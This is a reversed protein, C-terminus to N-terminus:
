TGPRQLGGLSSVDAAPLRSLWSDIEAASHLRVVTKGTRSLAALLGPLDRAHRRQSTVAWRLVSDKGFLASWSEKNGNWLPTRRVIRHLSRRALRPLIVRLPLELWIITDARPWLVRSVQDIYNGDVVWRTGRSLEDVRDTFEETPVPVWNAGHALGDLEVHEAGIMTALTKAMISKGSGSTGLVVVRRLQPVGPTM